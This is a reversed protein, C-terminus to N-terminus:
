RRVNLTPLFTLPVYRPKLARVAGDGNEVTQRPQSVFNSGVGSRRFAEDFLRDVDYYPEYFFVSSSM